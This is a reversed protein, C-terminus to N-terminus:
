LTRKRGKPPRFWEEHFELKTHCRARDQLTKITREFLKEATEIKTILGNWSTSSRWKGKDKVEIEIIFHPRASDFPDLIDFTIKVEEPLKIDKMRKTIYDDIRKNIM